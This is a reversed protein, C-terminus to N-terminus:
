EGARTKANAIEAKFNVKEQASYFQEPLTDVLTNTTGLTGTLLLLIMHQVTPSSIFQNFAAEDWEGSALKKKNLARVYAILEIGELVATKSDARDKQEQAESSIDITEVSFEQPFFFFTATGLETVRQESKTAKNIDEGLFVLDVERVWRDLKGFAGSASQEDAWAEAEAMTPWKASNTIEGLKNKVIVKFM